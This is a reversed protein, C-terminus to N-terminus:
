FHGDLLDTVLLPHPTAEHTCRSAARRRMRVNGARSYASHSLGSLVAALTLSWRKPPGRRLPSMQPNDCLNGSAGCYSTITTPAPTHPM